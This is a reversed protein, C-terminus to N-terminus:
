RQPLLFRRQFPKEEERLALWFGFRFVEMGRAYTNRHKALAHETHYPGPESSSWRKISMRANMTTNLYIAIDSYNFHFMIIFTNKVGQGKRQEGSLYNLNILALNTKLTKLIRWNSPVNISTAEATSTTESIKTHSYRFVKKNAMQINLPSSYILLFIIEGKPSKTFKQM